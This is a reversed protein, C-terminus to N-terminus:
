EVEILNCDNCFFDVNEPVIRGACKVHYWDLCSNCMIQEGSLQRSCKACPWVKNELKEIEDCLYNFAKRELYKKTGSFEIGDNRLRSFILDDEIIEHRATKKTLIENATKNTLWRVINLSQNKLNLDLFKKKAFSTHAPASAKRKLGIVTNTKGKPRGVTSIKMPLKIAAVDNRSNQLFVLTSPGAENDHSVGTETITSSSPVPKTTRVIEIYKAARNLAVPAVHNPKDNLPHESSDEHEDEPNLITNKLATLKQIFVDHQVNTMTSALNNIERTITAAKKFKDVEDRSKITQVSIPQPKHIVGYASLAPHSQQYYQNTWRQLCVTPLFQNLNEVKLMKFMHRCPINLTKFFSCSCFDRTVTYGSQSKFVGDGTKTLEIKLDESLKYQLEM